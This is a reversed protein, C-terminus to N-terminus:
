AFRERREKRERYRRYLHNAQQRTMGLQPGIEHFGLGNDHMEVVRAELELPYKPNRLVTPENLLGHRVRLEHYRNQVASTSLGLAEGIQKFINGARRMELITQDEVDTWQHTRPSIFEEDEPSYKPKHSPIFDVDVATTVTRCREHDISFFWGDLFEKLEKELNM